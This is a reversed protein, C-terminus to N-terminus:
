DVRESSTMSSNYPNYRAAGNCHRLQDLKPACRRLAISLMHSAPSRYVCDCAFYLRLRRRRHLSGTRALASAQNRFALARILSKENINERKTNRNPYLASVFNPVVCLHCIAYIFVDAPECCSYWCIFMSWVYAAVFADIGPRELQRSNTVRKQFGLLHALARERALSTHM